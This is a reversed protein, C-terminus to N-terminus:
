LVGVGQVCVRCTRGTEMWPPLYASYTFESIGAPVIITSGEVGQLHRAQRDALSIEIPGEYGKRDIKYKRKHIGGRAAFGMDYEGKIVFPTPLAVALLVSSQEPMGRGTPLKAVREVNKAKGAVTLRAVDI